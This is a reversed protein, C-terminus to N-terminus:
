RGPIRLVINCHTHLDRGFACTCREGSMAVDVVVHAKVISRELVVETKLRVAGYQWQKHLVVAGIQGDAGKSVTIKLESVFPTGPVLRPEGRKRVKM